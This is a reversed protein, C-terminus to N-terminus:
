LIQHNTSLLEIYSRDKYIISTLSNKSNIGYYMKDYGIWRNDELDCDCFQILIDNSSIKMKVRESEFNIIKSNYYAQGYEFYPIGIEINHMEFDDIVSYKKVSLVNAEFIYGFEDACLEINIDENDFHLYLAQSEARCYPFKMTLYDYYQISPKFFSEIRKSIYKIGKFNIRDLYQM